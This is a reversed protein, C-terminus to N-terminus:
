TSNARLYDIRLHVVQVCIGEDQLERAQTALEEIVGERDRSAFVRRRSEGADDWSEINPWLVVYCGHAVHLDAMYRAVLQSRMATLLEDHWAGKVEIPLSITAFPGPRGTAADIQLDDREPIGSTNNRRVQVERNVVLRNGGTLEALRNRLYDSIEDESKPRKSHTDWLLHSQPNAGTLGRQIHTFANMAVRQLDAETNVLATGDPQALRVLDRIRNAEWSKQSFVTMATAQILQLSTDSPLANAIAALADMAAATGRDRLAVLLHNRWHGIQERPLVDHVGAPQPPDDAPDFTQRLWLYIDAILNEPLYDDSQRHRVTEADGLVELVLQQDHNFESKLLEWSGALDHDVLLTGAAVREARRNPDRETFISQLLPIATEPRKRTLLELLGGALPGPTNDIVDLVLDQLDDDLLFDVENTWYLHLDAAAAARIYRTLAGVLVPHAHADARALLAAKDEWLPGDITCTIAAIIPAWETWDESSLQALATPKTRLLLTLARYGAYAAYHLASPDDVWADPDCLRTSLYTQAASTVRERDAPDLTRWRPMTTLGVRPEQTALTRGLLIFAQHDGSEIRDLLEAVDEDNDEPQPTHPLSQVNVLEHMRRMQAAADSGLRVQVWDERSQRIPHAEDLDLFLEVHDRNHAQFTLDFLRNLADLRRGAATAAEATVWDLDDPRLLGSGSAPRDSLYLVVTDNTTQDIIASVLRHRSSPTLDESEHRRSRRTFLLGEYNGGRAHAIRVLAAAVGDDIDDAAALGIIADALEEFDGLNIEELHSELWAIAVPLDQRQLGKAFDAVFRRYGGYYNTLKPARLMSFVEAAEIAHPWSATLGVALLEDTEDAGRASEDRVLPVLDNFPAGSGVSIAAYGARTRLGDDQAPDLALRTLEPLLEVIECDRALKVALRQQDRSGSALHPKIQEAIALHNLGDLREGFGWERRGADMFLGDIVAVRLEATPLDIQGLFCEPDVATLWSFRGPAIAILWAATARLQPRVRGDPGVLLARVKDDSLGNAVIWAATLYEGFSAHSFGLRGPGMSAFLGTSLVDKVADETVAVSGISTPESGEAIKAIFLDDPDVEDQRGTWIAAARGFTLGAAVRRGVAIREDVTLAGTLGSELRGENIEEALSQTGQDYLTAAREPLAGIRQFSRALMRLTQPRSAFASAGARDVAHLFADSDDCLEAAIARADERRLPLLGVIRLDAFRSKLTKEVLRSWDATRSAVRFLLRETPWTRIAGALIQGLQPIREQAEDFGDLVVALEGSGSKWQEILPNRVVDDVLLGESGYPALDIILRTMGAPILQDPRQLITSKGSGMEGLMVLGRTNQLESTSIAEPNPSIRGFIPQTPDALFGDGDLHFQGNTPCWFREINAMRHTSREQNLQAVVRLAHFWRARGAPSEITRAGRPL